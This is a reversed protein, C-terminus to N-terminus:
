LGLDLLQQSFKSLFLKCVFLCVFLCIVFMIVSFAFAIYGRYVEYRPYLLQIKNLQPCCISLRNRLILELIFAMETKSYHRKLSVDSQLEM